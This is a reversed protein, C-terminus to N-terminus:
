KSRQLLTKIDAKMESNDKKITDVAEVIAAIQKDQVTNVDRNEKAVESVNAELIHNQTFWGGVASLFIGVAVASSIVINGKTEMWKAM